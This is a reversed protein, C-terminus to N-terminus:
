YVTAVAVVVVGPVDQQPKSTRGVAAAAGAGAGREYWGFRHRRHRDSCHRRKVNDYLPQQIIRGHKKDSANDDNGHM